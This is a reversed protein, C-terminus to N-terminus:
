GGDQSQYCQECFGPEPAPSHCTGCGPCRGDPQGCCTCPRDEPPGINICLRYWGDSYNDEGEIHHFDARHEWVLDRVLDVTGPQNLRPDFDLEHEGVYKAHGHEGIAEIIYTPM